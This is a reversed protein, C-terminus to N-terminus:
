NIGVLRRPVIAAKQVRTVVSMLVGPLRADEVEVDEEGERAAHGAGALAAVGEGDVGQLVVEGVGVVGGGGVAGDRGAGDAEAAQGAEARVAVRQGVPRLGPDARVRPLDDRVLQAHLRLEM